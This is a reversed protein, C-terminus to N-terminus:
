KSPNHCSELRSRLERTYAAAAHIRQLSNERGLLAMTDPMSPGALGGVVAKRLWRHLMGNVTRQDSFRHLEEQSLTEYETTCIKNVVATLEEKLRTAIWQGAPIDALIEVSSALIDDEATFSSTKADGGNDFVQKLQFFFYWNRKLFAEPSTYQKADARLVEAVLKRMIHNDTTIPRRLDATCIAILILNCCRCIVKM